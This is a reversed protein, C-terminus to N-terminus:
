GGTEPRPCNHLPFRVTDDHHSGQISNYALPAAVAAAAAAVPADYGNGNGHVKDEAPLYTCRIKQEHISERDEREIAQWQLRTDTSGLHTSQPGCKSVLEPLPRTESEPKIITSQVLFKDRCKTGLPPDEKM